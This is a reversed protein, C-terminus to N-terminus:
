TVDSQLFLLSFPLLLTKVDAAASRSGLPSRELWRQRGVADSIDASFGPSTGGRQPDWPRGEM